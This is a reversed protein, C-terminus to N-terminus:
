SNSSSYHKSSIDPCISTGEKGESSLVVSVNIIWPKDIASSCCYFLNNKRWSSIVFNIQWSKYHNLNISICTYELHVYDFIVDVVIM